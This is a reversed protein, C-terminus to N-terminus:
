SPLRLMHARRLGQQGHLTHACLSEFGRCRGQLPSELEQYSGRVLCEGDPLTRYLPPLASRVASWESAEAVHGAHYRCRRSRGVGLAIPPHRGARRCVFSPTRVSRHRHTPSTPRRAGRRPVGVRAEAMRASRWVSRPSSWTTSVSSWCTLRHARHLGGRARRPVPKTFEPGVGRAISQSPRTRRCVFSTYAGVQELGSVFEIRHEGHSGGSCGGGESRRCRVPRWLPFCGGERGTSSVHSSRSTAQGHRAGAVSVSWRHAAVMHVSVRPWPRTSTSVTFVRHLVSELQDVPPM